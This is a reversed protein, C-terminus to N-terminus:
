GAFIRDPESLDVDISTIRGSMGAPGINRIKLGELQKTDLKQATFPFALALCFLALLYNRIM